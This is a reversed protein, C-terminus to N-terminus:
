AASAARRKPTNRLLTVLREARREATHDALTRERARRAITAREAETLALARLVDDRSRAILIEREPEFFEDLGPWDDTVIPVGCAAAEFLRASPCFGIRKMPARTLNLTLRSSGYFAPHESPPVHSRHEVNPARRMTEPYMPGGLLLRAEPLADAVDLFLREVGDQRDAAYTGLYSLDFTKPVVCPAHVRTDVCGYLPAVPHAGLERELAAISPGGTFSLVLDFGALSRKPLWPVQEEHALLDLTVPTDLDYFVKLARAGLVVEMALAADAQYSTVIAADAEGVDRRARAAVDAFSPYIVVEYGDGHALDRSSAYFPTDREYFVVRHGWRALARLIGRWLTAHGNGWASSVSLGFVVLKM